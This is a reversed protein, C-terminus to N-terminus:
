ARTPVSGHPCALRGIAPEPGLSVILKVILTFLHTRAASKSVQPTRRKRDAERVMCGWNHM